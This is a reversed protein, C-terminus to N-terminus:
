EIKQYFLLYPMGLDIIEKQFDGIEKVISDNYTYWKEDIPSLCHAIFHGSEGSEGLHTIVGILKYKINGKKENVYNTIDLETTFELKIKFQIGTGRNLLLILVKPATTLYSTYEASSMQRCNNCYIQNSDKFIEPKQNYEFCDSINVINNYLKNLRPNTNFNNIINNNNNILNNSSINAFQLSSINNNNNFGFNNYLNNMNNFVNGTQLMPMSNLFPNFMIMNMNMNMNMDMSNNFNNINIVNMPNIFNNIMNMNYNNGFSNSMLQNNMNNNFNNKLMDNNIKNIAYKKVEELPFVLFFYAQFNYQCNQCNLCKTTTQQIAYFIESIKSKFNRKYEECFVKYVYKIDNNNFLNISTANINNGVVNENLEEHLTMIIFNVLDKADNAKYDIFLPNMDAIKRRFEKPSYNRNESEIIKAEDPWIQEILLKFSPTLYKKNLAHSDKIDNVHKDYKFYLVFEEIQCFCQLTANMYCTAGINNLGVLPPWPFLLKLTKKQPIIENNNQIQNQKIVFTNMNQYKQLLHNNAFNNNINKIFNKKIAIGYKKNQGDNIELPNIPILKLTECYDTFGGIKLINQVHECLYIPKDYLLFFEPEFIKEANLNGIELLYKNEENPNPFYILIYSKDIICEVKEANEIISNQNNISYNNRNNANFLYDYIEADILEFNYFYFLNKDYGYNIQSIDPCKQEEIKFNIFKKDREEFDNIYKKHIQNKMLIILKDNINYINSEYDNLINNLQTQIFTNNEIETSLKDYNYYNKYKKMWNKNVIYYKRFKNNNIKNPKKILQLYNM